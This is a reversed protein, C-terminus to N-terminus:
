YDRDNAYYFIGALYLAAVLASAIFALWGSLFSFVFAAGGATMVPALRTGFWHAPRIGSLFAGLYVVLACLVIQWEDATMSWLFPTPSSGPIAVRLAYAVIALGGIVFVLGCGVIIKTNFVFSRQVPRHLLFQYSNQGLEWASQKIGLVAALPFIVLAFRSFFDDSVFPFRDRIELFRPTGIEDIGHLEACVVIMAILALAVVGASERLEKIVLAKLM